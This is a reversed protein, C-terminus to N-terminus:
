PWIRSLFLELEEQSFGMRRLAHALARRRKEAPMELSPTRMLWIIQGATKRLLEIGLAPDELQALLGALTYLLNQGEEKAQLLLQRDGESPQLSREPPHAPFQPPPLKEIM